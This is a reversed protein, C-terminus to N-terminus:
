VITAIVSKFLQHDTITVTPAPLRNWESSTRPVFSQFFTNSRCLPIGVKHIHDLRPSIYIPPSIIENRLLPHYFLKHFLCRRFMKRRSYLSPLNLSSKMASISATRNYNSLIFRTSNNQVMELSQTLNVQGPDWISAAYELKPRILTKYLLLKLSSPAKSFNRRLYGLTRNANNITHGIHINWTLDSTIHLGLYKYSTVPDLPVNNLFYVPLQNTTRSVRMYKCKKVNLEM